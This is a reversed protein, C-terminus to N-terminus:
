LPIGIQNQICYDYYDNLATEYKPNPKIDRRDIQNVFEDVGFARICTSIANGYLNVCNGMAHMITYKKEIKSFISIKEASGVFALWWPAVDDEYIRGDSRKVFRIYNNIVGCFTEGINYGGFDYAVIFNYARENRLQIEWRLWHECGQPIERKKKKQEYLKDYCRMRVDSQTSGFYITEGGQWPDYTIPVSRFNSVCDHKHVAEHIQNIDLIGEFDDYAVDLRAFHYMEPYDLINDFIRNYDGNFSNEFTRCGDGSFEVWIDNRKSGTCISIGEYRYAKSYGKYGNTIVFDSNNIGLIRLLKHLDNSKYTFSIWDFSIRNKLSM